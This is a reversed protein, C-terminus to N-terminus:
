ATGDGFSMIVTRARPDEGAQACQGIEIDELAFRAEEARQDRNGGHVGYRFVGLAIGGNRRFLQDLQLVLQFFLLLFGFLGSAAFAWCFAPM